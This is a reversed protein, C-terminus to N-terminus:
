SSVQEFAEEIAQIIREKKWPKMLYKFLLGKDFGELMIEAEVFGTLLMCVIDARKEKIRKIFELGDMEPMKLDTIVVDILPDSELIELGDKGCSATIVEFEKRLSLKFLTVNIEEDDVYLIKRKEEMEVEKKM